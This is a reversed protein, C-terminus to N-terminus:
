SFRALGHKIDYLEAEMEWHDDGACGKSDTEEATPRIKRFVIRFIASSDEGSRHVAIAVDIRALKGRAKEVVRNANGVAAALQYFGRLVDLVRDKAGTQLAHANRRINFEM